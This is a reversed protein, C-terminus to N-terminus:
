ARSSPHGRDIFSDLRRRLDRIETICWGFLATVVATQLGAVIYFVNADLATTAETM